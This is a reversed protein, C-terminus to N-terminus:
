NESRKKAYEETHRASQINEHKELKKKLGKNQPKVGCQVIDTPLLKYFTAVEPYGVHQL